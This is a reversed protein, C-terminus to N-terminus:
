ILCNEIMERHENYLNIHSNPQFYVCGLLININNYFLLVIIQDVYQIIDFNLLKCNLHKRTALLVGGGRVHLNSIRHVRFLNYDVLGLKVNNIDSNLWTESLFLLDYNLNFAFIYYFDKVICSFFVTLTLNFYYSNDM